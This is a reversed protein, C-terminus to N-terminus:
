ESCNKYHVKDTFLLNVPIESVAVCYVLKAVLARHFVEPSFSSLYLHSRNVVFTLISELRM